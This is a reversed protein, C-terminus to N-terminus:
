GRGHGEIKKNGSMFLVVDCPAISDTQLLQHVKGWEPSEKSTSPHGLGPLTHSLNGCRDLPLESVFSPQNCLM